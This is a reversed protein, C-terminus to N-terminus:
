SYVLSLIAFGIFLGVFYKFKMQAFLFKVNATITAMLFLTGAAYLNYASSYIAVQETGLYGWFYVDARTIGVQFFQYFFYVKTKSLLKFYQKLPPFQFGYGLKKVNTTLFVITLFMGIGSFVICVEVLSIELKYYFVFSIFLLRLIPESALLLIDNKNKGFGQIRNQLFKVFGTNLFFTVLFSILGISRGGFLIPIILLIVLSQLLRTNIAINIHKDNKIANNFVYWGIGTDSM